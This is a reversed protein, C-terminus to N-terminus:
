AMNSRDGSPPPPPQSGPSSSTLSNLYNVILQRNYTSMDRTVPMSYANQISAQVAGAIQPAYTAVITQNSLDIIEAMGPYLRAYAALVPQVQAWTPNTPVTGQNEFVLVSFVAGKAAQGNTAPQNGVVNGLNAWSGSLFYVQSGLPQRRAPLQAQTFSNATFKVAVAGDPGTVPTSSYSIGSTPQNPDNSNAVFALPAAFSALPAGFKYARITATASEGTNLRFGAPEGDAWVGDSPESLVAPTRCAADTFLGIPTGACRAFESSSLTTNFVGASVSYPVAALDIPQMAVPIPPAGPIQIGIYLRNLVFNNQAGSLQISNGVDISLMAAPGNAPSIKAFLPYFMPLTSSTPNPTVFRRGAVFQEPESATAPGITGAIRGVCFNPQTIDDQFLDANFKISLYTPSAANLERAFSSKAVGPGWKLNSLRGMFTGSFSSDGGSNQVRALWLDNIEIAGIDGEVVISGDALRVAVHIAFLRSISQQDPDLDVIKGASMAGSAQNPTDVIATLIPDSGSTVFQGTTLTYSGVAGNQIRFFALGKPNWGVSGPLNPNTDQLEVNPNFNETINNITSPNAFFTGMFHLRPLDLYSM